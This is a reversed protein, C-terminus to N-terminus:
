RKRSRQSIEKQKHKKSTQHQGFQSESNLSVNCAACYYQGSPTRFASYDTRKLFTQQPKNKTAAALIDEKLKVRKSISPLDNNLLGGMSKKMKAKHSKGNLHMDMQAQSPAGVKCLDCYFKNFNPDINSPSGVITSKDERVDESQQSTIESRSLRQWQNADKNYFSTNAPGGSSTVKKLHNKGQLHQEAQTESTFQLHCVVCQLGKNDTIKPRKESIVVKQPLINNTNGPWSLFFNRVNKDHTKGEYHM